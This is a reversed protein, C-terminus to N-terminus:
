GTISGDELYYTIKEEMLPFITAVRKGVRSGLLRTAEDIDVFRFEELEQKPIIIKAIDSDLLTTGVFIFQLTDTRDKSTTTYDICALHTISIELALEERIERLCAPLPSDNSEVVGGPIEWGDKYTPKVILLEGNSNRLLAGAGMPKAPLSKFYSKKDM